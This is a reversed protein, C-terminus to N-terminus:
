NSPVNVINPTRNQPTVASRDIIIAARRQVVLHPSPTEAGRWGQILIYATYSDSRTTVLNSVRTMANFVSEFDGSVNDPGGETTPDLPSLNGKDPTFDSSTSPGLVDRLKGGPVAVENLEFLSRFPGHPKGSGDNVDRYKAIAQGIAANTAAYGATTAPVWPVAALVRWPTSNVNVLGDVPVTEETANNTNYAVPNTPDLGTNAVGLTVNAVMQPISGSNAPPYRYNYGYGTDAKWPDVNPTYDDQPSQVTLFDFLRTAWHYRWSTNNTGGAASIAFDDVAPTAGASNADDKDIPCFRGINEATLATSAIPQYSSAGDSQDRATAMSSDMSVSNLEIISQPSGAQFIKYAGIYTVQLMDGNRAFGGFPFFNPGGTTPKLPGGFDTNAVQLPVDKYVDTKLSAKQAIGLFTSLDTTAPAPTVTVTPEETPAAAGAGASAVNWRGPYVFHWNKGATSDSPRVYHWTQSQGKPATAPLNTFDYSDAPVLDYINAENFTNNLSTSAPMVTGDARRPRVVVVENGFAVPLLGSMVAFKAAVGAPVTVSAPAMANSTIILFSKAHIVPSADGPAAPITGVPTLTMPSSTRPMTAIQWNKLSIDQNFPNYLEIAVWDNAANEDNIAFIQTLYPQKETGYVAAQYSTGPITIIRSTVDDDADRLDMANVSAIAARLYMVQQPTLTPTGAGPAGSTVSRIPNRFMRANAVNFFAPQWVNSVFQDAMVGWFAAYLQQFTATNISTKTAASTWPEFAWNPDQYLPDTLPSRPAATPNPNICVYRHSDGSFTIMDGFAFTGTGASIGKDAFKAPAFNSVPSRVTLLARMPKSRPQSTANAYDVMYDFNNQFWVGANGPAYPTTPAFNFATNFLRQELTSPSTSASLATPDRLVMKRALTMSETIPLAQFFTTTNVYGPNQLRRGLQMWQQDFYYPFNSTPDPYGMWSFDTRATGTEGIPQPSPATNNFRYALLGANGGGGFLEQSPQGPTPDYLMGDLDLGVPSFDGPMAATAPTALAATTLATTPNPHMAINANIAACNDIIRIAAYYTVGDLTLLKFLGADAIGDGDADAAMFWKTTDSPNIWAPWFQGDIMITTQGPTLATRTPYTYPSSGGGAPGWYPQDFQTKGSLPASIYPWLPLAPINMSLPKTDDVLGPIRSALWADGPQVGAAAAAGPDLGLGNWYNYTGPAGLNYSPNANRFTFNIFTDGAVTGETLNIMGDLLLDVETNFSHQQTAVRDAQAMSMYATGILAMLVLLAVVLILVSGPRSRVFRGQAKDLMRRIPPTPTTM